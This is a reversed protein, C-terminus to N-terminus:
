LELQNLPILVQLRNQKNIEKFISKVEEEEFEDYVNSVPKQPIKVNLSYIRSLKSWVYM